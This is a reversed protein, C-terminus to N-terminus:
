LASPSLQGRKKSKFVTVTAFALLILSVTSPEPIVVVLNEVGNLGSILAGNVVTGNENYEGIRATNLFANPFAAVYLHGL